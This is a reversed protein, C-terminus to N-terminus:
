LAEVSKRRTGTVIFLARFAGLLREVDVRPEEAERLAPYFPPRNEGLAIAIESAKEFVGLQADRIIKAAANRADALSIAPYTGIAVRKPRDNPRVIIFWTKHGTPSVRVGFGQLATDWIDIRKPSVSESTRSNELHAKAEHKWYHRRSM